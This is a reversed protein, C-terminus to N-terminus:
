SLGTSSSGACCPRRRVTRAAPHGHGRGVGRLDGGPSEARPGEGLPVDRGPRLCLGRFTKLETGFYVGTGHMSDTKALETSFGTAAISNLNRYSTGHVVTQQYLSSEVYAEAEAKSMMPKWEVPLGRGRGAM